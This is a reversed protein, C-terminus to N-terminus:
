NPTEVYNTSQPTDNPTVYEFTKSLPEKQSENQKENECYNPTEEVKNKKRRRKVMFVIIVAVIIIVFLPILIYLLINQGKTHKISVDEYKMEMLNPTCIILYKSNQTVDIKFDFTYNFSKNHSINSYIFSLNQLSFFTNNNSQYIGLPIKPRLFSNKFSIKLYVKDGLEFGNLNLFLYNEGKVIKETFQPLEQLTFNIHRIIFHSMKDLFVDTGLLLYKTKINLRIYFYFTSSTEVITSKIAQRYGMGFFSILDLDNSLRSGLLENYHTNFMYKEQFLLEIYITDGVEFDEVNLYYYTEGFYSHEGYKQLEFIPPHEMLIIKVFILFYFM